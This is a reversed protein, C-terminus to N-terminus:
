VHTGIPICLISMAVTNTFGSVIWIGMLLLICLYITAYEYMPFGYLLFISHVVAVHILKSSESVCLILSNLDGSFIYHIM